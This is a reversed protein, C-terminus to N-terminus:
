NIAVSSASGRASDIAYNLDDVREGEVVQYIM